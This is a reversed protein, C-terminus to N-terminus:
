KNISFLIEANDGQRNVTLSIETEEQLAKLAQVAQEPDTLDYGNIAIAIDGTKLGAADFFENDGSPMLKYGITEGAETVRSIKLYDSIKGPNDAIDDKIEKMRQALAQNKRKDVQATNDDNNESSTDEILILGTPKQQNAAAFKKYDIGDLMLTELRGSQKILVRDNLVQTLTARTGAIKDGIGYTEQTGANEIIAAGGDKNSSTVVGTLTLNLRTEPAEQVALVQENVKQAQYHGFLNLTTIMSIDINPKSIQQSNQNFNVTKGGIINEPTPQPTMLWTLKAALYAIYVILITSIVKAIPKQPLKSILEALSTFHTSLPM